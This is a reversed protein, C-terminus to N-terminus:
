GGLFKLLYVYPLSTEIEKRDWQMVVAIPNPDLTNKPDNVRGSRLRWSDTVIDNGFQKLKTAYGLNCYFLLSRQKYETFLIPIISSFSMCVYKFHVPFPYRTGKM